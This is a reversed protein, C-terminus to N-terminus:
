YKKNILYIQDKNKLNNYNDINRNGVKKAPNGAYISHKELEGRVVSSASIIVGENIKTGPLITVDSGIWVNLDIYVPKHIEINDYPLMTSNEYRHNFTHIKVRPGIITGKKITLGGRADIFSFPGIYIYEDFNIKNFCNIDFNHEIIIHKKIIQNKLLKFKLKIKWYKKIIKKPLM